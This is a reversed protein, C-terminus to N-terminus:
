TGQGEYCTVHVYKVAGNEKQLGLMSGRSVVVRLLEEVDYALTQNKREDPNNRSALTLYVDSVNALDFVDGGVFEVKTGSVSKVEGMVVFDTEVYQKRDEALSNSYEIVCRAVENLQSEAGTESGRGRWYRSFIFYDVTALGVVVVAILSWLLYKRWRLWM